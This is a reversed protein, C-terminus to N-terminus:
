QKIHMAISNSVVDLYQLMQTQQQPINDLIHPLSNKEFEKIYKMTVHHAVQHRVTKGLKKPQSDHVRNYLLVYVLQTLAKRVYARYQIVKFYPDLPTNHDIKMKGKVYSSFANAAQTRTLLKGKKTTSYNRAWKLITPNNVRKIPIRKKTEYNISSKNKNAPSKKVKSPSNKEVVKLKNFYTKMNPESELKMQTRMREAFANATETKSLFKGKKTKSYNKAWRLTTPNNVRQIGKM